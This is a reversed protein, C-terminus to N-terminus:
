TLPGAFSLCLGLDLAARAADVGGAFCHMVGPLPAYDHLVAYLEGYAQRCHLIVPLDLSRALELQARLALEQLVPSARDRFFDFGTEGIACCGPAKALTELASWEAPFRAAENPHLGASWHVGPLRAALDRARQSSALDIGVVLMTGVGAARARAHEPEPPEGDLGLHCHSDFVSAPSASPLAADAM